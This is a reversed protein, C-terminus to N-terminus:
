SLCIDIFNKGFDTFEIKCKQYTVYANDNNSYQNFKPLARYAKFTKEYVDEIALCEGVPINVIQLRLLNDLVIQSIEIFQPMIISQNISDTLKCGTDSLCIVYGSIYRFEENFRFQLELQIIPLDHILNSDKLMKLFKADNSNLQKIIEIYAPLVKSQKSKDLDNSIINIFMEQIYQQADELNYKLIDVAPGLINTRPETKNEDPIKNYKEELKKDIEKIKYECEKIKSYMFPKIGSLIFQSCFGLANKSSNIAPKVADNYVPEVLKDIAKNVTESKIDLDAM